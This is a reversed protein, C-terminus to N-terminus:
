RRISANVAEFNSETPWDTVRPLEDEFRVQLVISREAAGGGVAFTAKVLWTKKDRDRKITEWMGAFAEKPMDPHRIINHPQGVLEDPSYGSIECFKRNAFTIVGKIDTESIIVRGEFLHEEDIIDNHEM